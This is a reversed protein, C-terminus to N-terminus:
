NPAPTEPADFPPDSDDGGAIPGRTQLEELTEAAKLLKEDQAADADRDAEKKVDTLYHRVLTAYQARERAPVNEDDALRCAKVYRDRIHRRVSEATFEVSEPTPAAPPTSGSPPHPASAGM